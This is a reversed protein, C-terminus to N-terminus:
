KRTTLIVQAAPMACRDEKFIENADKKKADKRSVYMFFSAALSEGPPEM